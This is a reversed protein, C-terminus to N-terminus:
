ETLFNVTINQKDDASSDPVHDSVDVLFQVEFGGKTMDTSPGLVIEGNTLGEIDTGDVILGTAVLPSTPGFVQKATLADIKNGSNYTTDSAAPDQYVVHVGPQDVDVTIELRTRDVAECSIGSIKIKPHLATVLVTGSSGGSTNFTMNGAPATDGNIPNEISITHTFTPAANVTGANESTTVLIDPVFALNGTTVCTAQTTSTATEAFVENQSIEWSSFLSIEKTFLKYSQIIFLAMVLSAGFFSRMVAFKFFRNPLM